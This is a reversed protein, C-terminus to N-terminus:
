LIVQMLHESMSEHRWEPPQEEPLDHSRTLSRIEDEPASGAARQVKYHHTRSLSSSRM